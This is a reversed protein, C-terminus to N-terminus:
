THFVLQPQDVALCSLYPLQQPVTCPMDVFLNCRNDSNLYGFLFLYNRGFDKFFAIKHKVVFWESHKSKVRQANTDITNNWLRLCGPIPRCLKSSSFLARVIDFSSVRHVVSAFSSIVDTESFFTKPDPIPSLYNLKPSSEFNSWNKSLLIQFISHACPYFHISRNCQILSCQITQLLATLVFIVYILDWM